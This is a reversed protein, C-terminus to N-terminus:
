LRLKFFLLWSVNGILILVVPLLLMMFSRALRAGNADVTDSV